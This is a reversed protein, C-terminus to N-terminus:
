TGLPMFKLNFNFLVTKTENLIFDNNTSFTSYFRKVGKAPIDITEYTLYNLVFM